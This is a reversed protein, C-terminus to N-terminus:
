TAPIVEVATLNTRDATPASDGVTVATGAQPATTQQAWFTNAAVTDAFMNVLSQGTLTTPTTATDWDAGTALILSDAKTTTLTAQAAGTASGHGATAGLNANAGTFAAVTISGDFGGTKLTASVATNSVPSAAYAKWIEAAGNVGNARAALTWTLGAGTVATVRQGGTSPGDASVLALLLENGGTTSVPPSTLAGAATPQDTSRVADTGLSATAASAAARIEVSVANWRDGAPTSDGANVTTGAAAVPATTAQVWSDDHVRTDTFEHILSQGSPATAPTAHTWDHGVTWVLSEPKTTTLTNNPSGTTSGGLTTAGLIPSAGTYTAVTIAGDFGANKLTATVTAASLPATAFAQWVEATGWATNARGALTWTLGGGTVGTVAQTPKTPGDTSVFALALENGQTTTLPPSTISSSATKADASVVQDVAPASILGLAAASSTLDAAETAPDAALGSSLRFDVIKQLRTNIDPEQSIAPNVPEASTTGDLNAQLFAATSHVGVQSECADGIGNLNTDKQDPNAVNPCNDLADPVGDGDADNTTSAQGNRVPYVYRGLQATNHGGHVLGTPNSDLFSGPGGSGPLEFFTGPNGTGQSFGARASSGGLCNADGGSATGSEWQIGDYNFEIDFNGAGTDSRDILVVQFNNLANNSGPFCHVGPWTVGFAAHGNVTGNGYTLVNGTRTDVDAFFPAVIVHQTSTLDFPTFQSLPSDFTVNGNNNVFLQSYSTGFFNLTFPM